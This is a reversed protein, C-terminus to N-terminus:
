IDIPGQNRDGNQSLRDKGDIVFRASERDGAYAFYCAVRLHRGEVRQDSEYGRPYEKLFQLSYGGKPQFYLPLNVGGNKEPSSVSFSMKKM